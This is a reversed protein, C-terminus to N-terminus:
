AARYYYNLIGGIATASPHERGFSGCRFLPSHHSQRNGSSEGSWIISIRFAASYKTDRDVILFSKGKLAGQEPDLLNRSMQLMWAENPTTTMGCLRVRRTLLDIVFLVYFTRLGSLSWVEVTFFDSAALGRWHAM